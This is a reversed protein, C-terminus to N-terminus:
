ALPGMFVDGDMDDSLPELADPWPTRVKRRLDAPRPQGNWGIQEMYCYLQVMHGDPDVAFITYDMGPFLAPDLERLEVGESELYDAAARLQAYSGLRLGLSLCLNDTPPAIEERLAEPYIAISHHENNARLFSCKHGRWEIEETLRLGLQERYFTVSADPERAFLRVPGIGTIRFPRAALVGALDHVFPSRSDLRHSGSALDVGKAQAEEIEQQESIHPLAPAEQYGRHMVLPKSHGSWGIQEMGYFLENPHGDPDPTYTHWNAGATDRGSRLVTRGGDRFWKEGEVVEALSGVQWSIQGVNIGPPLPTGRAVPIRDSCLVFSHHDSGFRTFYLHPDDLGAVAEPSLRKGVDLIDSIRLGLLRTYFDLTKGINGSFFHLHGLRRIKFPRQLRVGGVEYQVASM